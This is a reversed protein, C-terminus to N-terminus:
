TIPPGAKIACPTVTAVGANLAEVLEQVAHLLRRFSRSRAYVRALDLVASYAPQETTEKYTRVSVM